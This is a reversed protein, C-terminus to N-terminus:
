PNPVGGRTVHIIGADDITVGFAFPEADAKRPAGRHVGHWKARYDPTSSDEAALCLAAGSYWYTQIVGSRVLLETLGREGFAERAAATVRGVRFAQGVPSRTPDVGHLPAFARADLVVADIQPSFWVVPQGELTARSVATVPRQAQGDIEAAPFRVQFGAAPMGLEGQEVLPSHEHEVEFSALCEGEEFAPERSGRSGGSGACAVTCGVVVGM